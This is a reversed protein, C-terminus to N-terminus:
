EEEIFERIAAHVFEPRELHPLHGADPVTLLRARPSLGAARALIEHYKKDGDGAIFLARPKLSPLEGWLSPQRAVSLARLAAAREGASGVARRARLDHLLAPRTQLSAFLPLDYWARVFVSLGSRELDAARQNDLHLREAREAGSRLGPSASIVTLSALPLTPDLATALAIRGGMSYGILHPPTPLSRITRQAQRVADVFDAVLPSGHGPLACARVSYRSNLARALNQWDETDGLFGHLCVVPARGRSLITTKM